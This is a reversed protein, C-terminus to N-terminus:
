MGPLVHTYHNPLFHITPSWIESICPHLIIYIIIIFYLIDYLIILSSHLNGSWNPEFCKALDEVHEQLKIREHELRQERENIIKQEKNAEQKQLLLLHTVARRLKENEQELM